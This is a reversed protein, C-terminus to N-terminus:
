VYSYKSEVKQELDQGGLIDSMQDSSDDKLGDDSGYVIDCRKKLDNLKMEIVQQHLDNIQQQLEYLKSRFRSEEKSLSKKQIIYDLSQQSIILDISEEEMPYWSNRQKDVIGCEGGVNVKYYRFSANILSSNFYLRCLVELKESANYEVNHSAPSFTDSPEYYITVDNM